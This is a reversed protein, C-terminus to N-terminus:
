KRTLARNLLGFAAAFAILIGGTAMTALFGGLVTNVQGFDGWTAQGTVQAVSIGISGAV